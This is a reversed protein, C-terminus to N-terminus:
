LEIRAASAPTMHTVDALLQLESQYTSMLLEHLLPDTPHKALTDAIERAASRIDALNREVKERAASPLLALRQEFALDLQARAKSYDEGLGYGAFSAPMAIVEPRLPDADVISPPEDPADRMIVFTTFSSAVILLVGAALQYWRPAFGRPAEKERREAEIQAQIQPWLDRETAVTQPLTSLAEDLPDPRRSNM